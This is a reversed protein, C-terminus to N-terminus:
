SAFADRIRALAAGIQADIRLPGVEAVAGAREISPDAVVQVENAMHASLAGPEDTAPNGAIAARVAVVDAPNVRLVVAGREPALALARAAATVVLEDDDRIEREVISEALAVALQLVRHEVDHMRDLDTRAVQALASSMALTAAELDQATRRHQEIAASMEAMAEARGQARAEGLAGVEAASRSIRGGGISALKPPEFRIAARPAEHGTLGHGILAQGRGRSELRSQDV